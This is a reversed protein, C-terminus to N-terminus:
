APPGCSPQHLLLDRVDKRRGIGLKIMIMQVHAGVTNERIRLQKAIEKDSRREALLRAVEIQRKTLGYRRRLEIDTLWAPQLPRVIALVHGRRQGVEAVHLGYETGDIMLTLDPQEAICRTLAGRVEDMIRALDIASEM